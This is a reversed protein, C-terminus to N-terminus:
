RTSRLSPALFPADRMGVRELAEGTMAALDELVAVESEDAAHVVSWYSGIAAGSGNTSPVPVMVLSKVFTPIYADLPIRDDRTIDPVVATENNLMAWGSICRELPFRQGKWLPSVADEDVYFCQGGDRLVFTAGDADVLDRPARRVVVQVEALNSADDLRARYQELLADANDM